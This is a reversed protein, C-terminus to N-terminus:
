RGRLRGGDGGEGRTSLREAGLFLLRHLTEEELVNVQVTRPEHDGSRVVARLPPRVPVVPHTVATEGHAADELVERPRVALGLQLIVQTHHRVGLSQLVRVVNVDPALRLEHDGRSFDEVPPPAPRLVVTDADPRSSQGQESQLQDRIPLSVEDLRAHPRDDRGVEVVGLLHPVHHPAVQPLLHARVVEVPLVGVGPPPEEHGGLQRVLEAVRSLLAFVGAKGSGHGHAHLVVRHVTVDVLGRAAVTLLVDGSQEANEVVVRGGGNEPGRGLLHGGGDLREVINEGGHEGDVDVLSGLEVPAVLAVAVSTAVRPNQGARRTGLRKVAPGGLERLQALRLGVVPTKLRPPAYQTVTLLLQRGLIVDHPTDGGSTVRHEHPQPLVHAGKTEVERLLDVLRGPRARVHVVKGPAVGSHEVAEAEAGFRHGREVVHLCATVCM